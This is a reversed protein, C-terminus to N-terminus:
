YWRDKRKNNGGTCYKEVMDQDICPIAKRFGTEDPDGLGYLVASKAISDKDIASFDKISESIPFCNNPISEDSKMSIYYYINGTVRGTAKYFYIM